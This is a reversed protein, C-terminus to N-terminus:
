FYRINAFYSRSQFNNQWYEISKPKDLIFGHNKKKYFFWEKDVFQLLYKSSYYITMWLSGDPAAYVKTIGVGIKEKSILKTWESEHHKWNKNDYSFLGEFGTGFWKTNNDDIAISTINYSKMPSNDPLYFVLSDRLIRGLGNRFGSFWIENNHDIKIDYIRNSRMDTNNSDYITWKKGDFLCLGFKEYGLWLRDKKDINMIDINNSPIGSSEKTYFQWLGPNTLDQSFLLNSQSFLFFVIFIRIIIRM